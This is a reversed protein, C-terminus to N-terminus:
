VATVTTVLRDAVMGARDVACLRVFLKFTSTPLIPAVVDVQQTAATLDLSSLGGLETAGIATPDAGTVVCQKFLSSKTGIWYAVKFGALQSGNTVKGDSAGATNWTFSYGGNGKSVATMKLKSKSMAPAKNDFFVSASSEDNPLAADPQLGCFFARVTNIGAKSVIFTQTRNAPKWVTCKAATATTKSSLCVELDAPARSCTQLSFDVTVNVQKVTTFGGPASALVSIVRIPCPRDLYFSRRFVDTNGAGDRV